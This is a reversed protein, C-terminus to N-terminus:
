VSAPRKARVGDAAPRLQALGLMLALVVNMFRLELAEHSTMASVLFIVFLYFSFRPRPSRLCSVALVVTLALFALLVAFGAEGWIMLFTNHAGLWTQMGMIGGEIAHFSNLGTGFPFVSLAKEVSIAWMDTRGTTVESDFQGTAALVTASLRNIQNSDLEVVEQTAILDILREPNALLGATAILVLPMLLFRLRSKLELISLIVLVSLLLIGTKSYPVITALGVLGLASINVLRIRYPTGLLMAFAITGMLAAENPNAFLGAYRFAASPPPNLYIQYLVPSALTMLASFVATNRMFRLFRDLDRAGSLAHIHVTLATVLLLSGLMTLTLAQSAQGDNYIIIFLTGFFLYGFTVCLFLAYGIDMRVKRHLVVLLLACALLILSFLRNLGLLMFSVGNLNLFVLVVLTRALGGQLRTPEATATM